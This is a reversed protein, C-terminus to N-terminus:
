KCNSGGGDRGELRYGHQHVTKIDFGTGDLLLAKRLRSIHMDVTRTNVQQSVGWVEALLRHRSLLENQHRFLYAALSFDKGTVAIPEEFRTILHQAHDIVFPGYHEIDARPRRCFRHALVELRSVLEQPQLPKVVYDDAGYELARVIQDQAGSDSIFLLPLRGQAHNVGREVLEFCRDDDCNCDVLLLDYRESDLCALFEEANSCCTYRHGADALWAMLCEALNREAELIAVYM